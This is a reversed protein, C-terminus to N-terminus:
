EEKNHAVNVYVSEKFIHICRIVIGRPCFLFINCFSSQKWKSFCAISIVNSHERYKRNLATSLSLIIRFM